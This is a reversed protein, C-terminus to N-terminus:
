AASVGSFTSRGPVSASIVSYEQVNIPVGFGTADAPVREKNWSGVANVAPLLEARQIRYLARAREVTLAAVRLDRNNNLATEIIKQLREDTFFERWKLDTAGPAGPTAKTEKYAPGSPWSSPVPAEPKTYKPILTCGALM